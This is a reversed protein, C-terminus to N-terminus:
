KTARLRLLTGALLLGAALIALVISQEATATGNLAVVGLVIGLIVLAAGNM